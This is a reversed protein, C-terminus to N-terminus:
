GSLVSYVELRYHLSKSSNYMNAAGRFSRGLSISKKIRVNDSLRSSTLRQYDLLPSMGMLRLRAGTRPSTSPQGASPLSLSPRQTAPSGQRTLDNAGVESDM